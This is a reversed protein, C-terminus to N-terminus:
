RTYVSINPSFYIPSADREENNALLFAKQADDVLFQIRNMDAKPAELIVRAALGKVVADIWRQPVDVENQATGPDMIHRYRWFVLQYYTNDPVPWVYVVPQDRQRDFWYQLPKSEINKVPLNIYDDKNLRTTPIESVNTCIVFERIDLTGGGTERLRWFRAPRTNTLDLWYWDRDTYTGSGFDARTEWSTGDLSAEVVPALTGTAGPMFGVCQVLLDDIADYSINGDPATQTCSTDVDGDFAYSVTGGDSSTELGGSPRDFVRVTSNLVDVTGVPLTYQTQGPYVGVITKEICWLNTGENAWSSFMLFLHDRGIQAMEDTIADSPIGCRRYAMEVIKYVPFTQQSISGSVAM